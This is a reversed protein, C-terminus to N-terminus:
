ILEGCLLTKAIRNKLSRLWCSRIIHVQLLFHQDQPSFREPEKLFVTDGEGMVNVTASSSNAANHVGSLLAM